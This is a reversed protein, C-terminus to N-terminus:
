VVPGQNRQSRTEGSIVAPSPAAKQPRVAARLKQMIRLEILNTCPRTYTCHKVDFTLILFLCIQRIDFFLCKQM